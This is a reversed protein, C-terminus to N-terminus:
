QKNYDRVTEGGFILGQPNNELNRVVRDLRQLTDRADVALSTYESLGRSTFDNLGSAISGTSVTLQDALTQVSRAASAIDEFVGESDAGSVSDNVKALIADVQAVTGTLAESVENANAVIADIDDSKSGLSTTFSDINKVVRSVTATDISALLQDVGGLSNSIDQTLGLLNDSLTGANLLIADLQGTNTALFDTFSAVNAVVKAVQDPPVADVLTGLSATLTEIRESSNGLTTSFKDVNDIVRGIVAPDIQAAVQDIVAVSDTLGDTLETLNKSLTTTTDFFSDIQATNAALTDSFQTVNAVVKSLQEPPVADVLATLRSSLQTIQDAMPGIQQGVDSVTGLFTEVGDANSALANSFTEINSLTTDIRTDNDDLLSNLRAVATSAGNITSAMGDLISQFDSVQAYLTPATRGPGIAPEGAEATGGTLQVSGGGTLGQFGTAVKTDARVPVSAEVEIRAVVQASNDPDLGVETVQGIRIGNFQVETGRAVGSVTGTFVIEYPKLVVQSAPAAFWYIFAFLAVLVATALAGVFAYNANNEM